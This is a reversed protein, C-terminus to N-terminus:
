EAAASVRDIPSEVPEAHGALAVQDLLHQAHVAQIIVARDPRARASAAKLVNVVPSKAAAACALVIDGPMLRVHNVVHAPKREIEGTQPDITGTERLEWRDVPEAGRLQERLEKGIREVAEKIAKDM